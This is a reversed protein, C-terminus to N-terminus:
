SRVLFTHVSVSHAGQGETHELYLPYRLYARSDVLCGEDARDVSEKFELLLRGM